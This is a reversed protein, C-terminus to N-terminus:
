QLLEIKKVSVMGERKEGDPAWVIKIRDYDGKYAPSSALDIHYKGPKRRESMEFEYFNSEDFQREGFRRLYVRAKGPSASLAARIEIRARDGAKWFILPSVSAAGPALKIRWYKKLPWGTDTTNSLIWHQRDKSFDFSSQQRRRRSNEYAYNRIEGITGLILVYRYEYEINHDLIEAHLPSIYGTGADRSGGIFKDDGYYGGKFEQATPHWVGLGYDKQNLNAAWGETAQWDAWNIQSGDPYNHNQITTISDGEFPRNGAYTVLRHYPANTYIAPLEQHGGRYQTTDPRQNTIKSTVEVTNGKLTIWSEFFCDGPENDLPWQMPICKVYLSKGDNKHDLIKSRNGAYDGSQIPNWGLGRWYPAPQKGNPTYPRPESYFSMQVQRGWDHNNIVNEEDRLNALYTISGGLNLDIGVRIQGNQIYSMSKLSDANSRQAKGVQAVMMWWFLCTFFYLPKM